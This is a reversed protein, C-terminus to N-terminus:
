LDQVLARSPDLSSCTSHFFSSVTCRIKKNGRYFLESRTMENVCTVGHKSAPYVNERWKPDFYHTHGATSNINIIYGYEDRKHLSRYAEQTCFILGTLNTNIVDLIDQTNDELSLLDTDRVIGANNVLIDVGGLNSEVWAFAEKISDPNSVDCRVAHIKGPLDKAAAAYEEIKEKRRAMAVVNVGHAALAKATVAGIGGSAGTIVAVKNSWKEMNGLHNRVCSHNFKSDSSHKDIMEIKLM